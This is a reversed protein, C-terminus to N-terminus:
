TKIVLVPAVAVQQQVEAVKERTLGLLQMAKQRDALRIRCKRSGDPLKQIWFDEVAAAFPGNRVKGVDVEGNEDLFDAISATAMVSLREVAERRSIGALELAADELVKIRNRINIKSLLHLAAASAPTTKKVKYGAALYSAAANRAHTSTYAQCFAEHRANRLPRAGDEEPEPRHAPALKRM